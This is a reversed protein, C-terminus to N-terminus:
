LLLFMRHNCLLLHLPDVTKLGDLSPLSINEVGLLTPIFGLLIGPSQVVLIKVFVKFIGSTKGLLNPCFNLSFVFLFVRFKTLWLTSFFALCVAPNKGASNVLQNIRQRRQGAHPLM